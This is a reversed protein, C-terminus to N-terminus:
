LCAAATDVIFIAVTCCLECANDGCLDQTRVDSISFYIVIM